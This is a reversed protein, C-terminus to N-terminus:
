NEVALAVDAKAQLVDVFGSQVDVILRRTANLLEFQSLSKNAEAVTIREQRRGGREFVFDVRAGSQRPGAANTAPNFGTGLIDFYNGWVSLVPNPRLKANVIQADAIPIKYREAFLDLNRDIAEAIVQGIALPEFERSERAQAQVLYPATSVM